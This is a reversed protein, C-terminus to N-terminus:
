KSILYISALILLIGLGGLMSPVEQYLLAGILVGSVPELLAVLSGVQANIRRLGFFYLLYPLGFAFVGMLVLLPLNRAVATWPALLALPLALLAAVGTSWWGQILGDVQKGLRRSVLLTLGLTLGSLTAAGIGTWEGRTPTLGTLGTVLVVGIMALALSPWTYRPRAENLLWPSLLAVYLPATNNLLVANAATTTRVAYVYLVATAGMTVGLGLLYPLDSRYRRIQVVRPVKLTILSFLLFASAARFFTIIAANLGDISRAFIIAASFGIAGAAVLAM